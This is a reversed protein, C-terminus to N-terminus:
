KKLMEIMIIIQHSCPLSPCLCQGTLRQASVKRRSNGMGNGGYTGHHKGCGGMADEVSTPSGYFNMYCSIKM